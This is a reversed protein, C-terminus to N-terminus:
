YCKKALERKLWWKNKLIKQFQFGSKAWNVMLKGLGNSQGFCPHYIPTLHESSQGEGLALLKGEFLVFGVLFSM